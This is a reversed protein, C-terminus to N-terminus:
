SCVQKRGAPLMRHISDPLHGTHPNPMGSGERFFGGPMSHSCGVSAVLMRREGRLPLWCPLLSRLGVRGLFQIHSYCTQAQFFVGLPLPSMLWGAGQSRGSVSLASFGMMGGQVESRPVTLYFILARPCSHTVCCFFVSMSSSMRQRGGLHVTAFSSLGLPKSVTILCM